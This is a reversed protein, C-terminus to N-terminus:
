GGMGYVVGATGYAVCKTGYNTTAEKQFNNRRGTLWMRAKFWRKRKVPREGLIRGFQAEDAVASFRHNRSYKQLSPPIFSMNTKRPGLTKRSATSVKRKIGSVRRVGM